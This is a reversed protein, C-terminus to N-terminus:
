ATHTSGVLQWASQWVWGNTANLSINLFAMEELARAMRLRGAERPAFGLSRGLDAVAARADADDGAILLDLPVGDQAPANLRGGLLTNFAKVVRAQPLQDQLQEASSRGTTFTDSYDATLPNTVDVVVAGDLRGALTDAWDAVAAGPIALVVLDAGAVAEESTAATAGTEAATKAANEEHRAAISVEHGARTAATAFAGGFTGAGIVAIKM